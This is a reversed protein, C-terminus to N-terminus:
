YGAVESSRSIYLRESHLPKENGKFTATLQVRFAGSKKYAFTTVPKSVVRREGNGFDLEYRVQENYANIIFKMPVGEEMAGEIRLYNDAAILTRETAQATVFPEDDATQRIEDSHRLFYFAGLIGAIFLLSLLSNEISKGKGQLTHSPANM